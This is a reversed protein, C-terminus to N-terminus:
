DSYNVLMDRDFTRKVVTALTRPNATAHLWWDGAGVDGVVFATAFAFSAASPDVSFAFAGSSIEGIL